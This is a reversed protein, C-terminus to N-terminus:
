AQSFAVVMFGLPVYFALETALVIGLGVGAPGRFVRAERSALWVFAGVIVPGFLGSVVCGLVAYPPPTFAMLTANFLQWMAATAAAGALGFVPVLAFHTLENKM